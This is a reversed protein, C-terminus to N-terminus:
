SQHFVRNMINAFCITIVTHYVTAKPELPVHPIDAQHSETNGQAVTLAIQAATLLLGIMSLVDHIVTVVSSEHEQSMMTSSLISQMILEVDNCPWYKHDYLYKCHLSIVKSLERHNHASLIAFCLIICYSRQKHLHIM